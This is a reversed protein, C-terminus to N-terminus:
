TPISGITWSGRAVLESPIYTLVIFLRLCISDSTLTTRYLNIHGMIVLHISFLTLPDKRLKLQACLNLTM